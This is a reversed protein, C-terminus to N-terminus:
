KKQYVKITEEYKYRYTKAINESTAQNSTTADAYNKTM